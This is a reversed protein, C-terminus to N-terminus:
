TAEEDTDTPKKSNETGDTEQLDNVDTMNLQVTYKDGGPITGRDELDRVEDRNMWGNQLASAYFAQRTKMDGRLLGQLSFKIQVGAAVDAPTLLKKALYQELRIITPLLSYILFFLNLNESSSAWSSSKSIHHILLPPVNCLRCIEEIGFGRSELLQAESPSIRWNVGEVPKIGKPLTMSKGANEPQGFRALRKEFDDRQQITFEATREDLFFTGTKLGNKFANAAAFNSALQARLISAGVSLRSEGWQGNITFSPVHLIDEDKFEDAGIKWTRRTGSKNFEYQADNPDYPILSAPTSDTGRRIVSVANGCMDMHAVNMSMLSCPTMWTNPSHHLLYYLPHDTLIKKDKDRIQIPLSGVSEARLNICAFFAAIKMAATVGVAGGIGDPDSAFAGDGAISNPGYTKWGGPTEGYVRSWITM